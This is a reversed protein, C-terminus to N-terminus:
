PVNTLWLGPSAGPNYVTFGSNGAGIGWPEGPPYYTTTTGDTTKLHTVVTDFPYWLGNPGIFEMFANGASRTGTSSYPTSSGNFVEWAGAWCNAKYLTPSFNEALVGSWRHQWKTVMLGTDFDKIRTYERWIGTNTGTNMQFLSVNDFYIAKKTETGVTVTGVYKNFDSAITGGGTSVQYGVSSIAGVSDSLATDSGVLDNIFNHATPVWRWIFFQLHGVPSTNSYKVIVESGHKSGNTQTHYIIGQGAQYLTNPEVIIYGRIGYIPSPVLRSLNWVAGVGYGGAWIKGTNFGCLMVLVFILRKIVM